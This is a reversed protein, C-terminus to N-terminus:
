FVLGLVLGSFGYVCNPHDDSEQIDHVGTHKLIAVLSLTTMVHEQFPFNM